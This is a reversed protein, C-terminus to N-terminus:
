MSSFCVGVDCFDFSPFPPFGVEFEQGRVLFAYRSLAIQVSSHLDSPALKGGLAVTRRAKWEFYFASCMVYLHRTMVHGTCGRSWCMLPLGSVPLVVFRMPVHGDLCKHLDVLRVSINRGYFKRNVDPRAM